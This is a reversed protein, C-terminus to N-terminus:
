DSAVSKVLKDSSRIAKRNKSLALSAFVLYAAYLSVVIFGVGVRANVIAESSKTPVESHPKHDLDVQFCTGGSNDFGIATIECDM